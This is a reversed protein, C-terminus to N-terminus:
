LESMLYDVTAHLRDVSKQTLHTYISTTQASRHGLIEQISRLDIGAELLHTAYAHRLSHISVNKEIGSERLVAKFTKQLTTPSLPEKGNIAPFLWYRPKNAAWYARLYELTRLPLPVYRDKGGKGNQVRILMRKGDIDQVKLHIGESLRLGCSYIVRLATRYAPNVVLSLLSRVEELSLIEPLKRRKKPRILDFIAWERGLTKEYFFKIGCLYITVTSRAAGRENVLHLFFDRIEGESLQDPSRNYHKALSKVAGIYAEQTKQSFGHLQMDETMKRRLESM